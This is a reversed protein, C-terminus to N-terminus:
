RSKFYDAHKITCLYEGTKGTRWFNVKLCFGSFWWMDLFRGVDGM